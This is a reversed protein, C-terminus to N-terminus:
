KRVEDEERSYLVVAELPTLEMSLFGGHVLFEKEVTEYGIANSSLVKTMVSDQTRSIGIEWVPIDVNVNGNNNNVIVVIREDDTFRGYAILNYAGKLFKVSGTKLMPYAKHMRIAAKYFAILNKDEKGWPYTRRNDPDTFGCVGAEDGYYLTPAGPWTMQMVVAERLVAKNVNDEAARHGATHIRGVRGNTRSLFRSHDHNDLENMATQISPAYFRSSNYRMADQFSDANGKLDERYQDSHKEMGTLFWSIPEMFADYNMVTDWEDGRLWSSADGYHEALIVAKPNAEKVVRRFEKWFLHNYGSSHGLDAAVDLRWGDVNYPPSVWKRAVRMIYEQLRPSDEYNLKPLTDHGWWGDYFENYPWSHENHFKFFTHYPSDQAIYAGKEYGEQKEYIREKDLWKNFSGCHNFVGDLIIKMGRRHIEEVLEIFLQNSAELNKKNAVRNIYRTAHTNDRDGPHLLEGEDEVIRGFHPDIYDYDQIDYKHNSPSVFIPNLYIVDVGLDQLYDLKDMVGQLDGGYFNNVDMQAPLTDWQDVQHTQSNIYYYEGTLVDNSTDGNCFRDVFIQYMVAGKAWDPTEFGPVIGFSYQEQLKKTIGLKNYYCTIKGSQIEYFYHIPENGLEIDINYFDFGNKSETLRMPLRKAGSIFYVADVNNKLTRFRLTVVDGAKPEFPTRYQRTEDSFLAHKNFVPHMKNIYEQAKRLGKEQEMREKEKM